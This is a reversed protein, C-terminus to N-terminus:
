GIIEIEPLPFILKGGSSLYSQEREIIGNRFHWPLVLLYDPKSRRINDESEIPILSGPTFCNYKDTNVEAIGFLDKDTFGCFQLIVNGKTSAGYGGVKAGHYNLSSILSTLDAKHRYAKDEFDRFVTPSRLQMNDEMRLMWDIVVHNTTYSSNFHSATVAFSGGNISNFSVDIIKLGALNLLNNVVYLSYYEIHEQCITDYSNTRLMSPMYSQEFHWIGDQSLTDRIQICFDLPDPLDYFMSIATIVKPKELGLKEYSQRSFFDPVQIIDESYYQSFKSITPDIGIKTIDAPYAKLLTGDNSGIDLVCDGSSLNVISSLNLVKNELHRVMSQNLGSRYGYNEGYMLDLPPNALLQLLGSSQSLGLALSAQPVEEHRSKPFHGCLHQVGLDCVSILDQKKSIRCLSNSM